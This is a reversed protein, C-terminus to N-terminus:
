LYGFVVYCGLRQSERIAFQFDLSNPDAYTVALPLADEQDKFNYGTFAM